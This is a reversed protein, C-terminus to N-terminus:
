KVLLRFLEPVDLAIKLNRNRSTVSFPIAFSEIGKLLPLHELLIPQESKVLWVSNLSQSSIDYRGQGLVELGLLKVSFNNTSLKESNRFITMQLDSLLIGKEITDWEAALGIASRGINIYEDVPVDFVTAQALGFLQAKPVYIDVGKRRVSPLVGDQIIRIEIMPLNAEAKIDDNIWEGIVRKLSVDYTSMLYDIIEASISFEHGFVAGVLLPKRLYVQSDSINIGLSFAKFEALAGLTAFAIQPANIQINRSQIGQELVGKVDIEILEDFSTSWLTFNAKLSSNRENFLPQAEVGLRSITIENGTEEHLWYISGNEIHLGGAALAVFAQLIDGEDLPSDMFLSLSPEWDLYGSTSRILRFTPKSLIVRPELDRKLLDLVKFELRIQEAQLIDEAVSDDINGFGINVLSINVTTSRGSFNLDVDLEGDLTIRSQIQTSVWLILQDRYLIPGYTVTLWLILFLFSFLVFITGFGIKLLQKVIIASQEAKIDDSIQRKFLLLKPKM